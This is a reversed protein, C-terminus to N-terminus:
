CIRRQSVSLLTFCYIPLEGGSYLITELAFMLLVASLVRNMGVSKAPRHSSEVIIASILFLM